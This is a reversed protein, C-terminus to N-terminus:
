IDKVIMMSESGSNPYFQQNVIDFLGISPTTYSGITMGGIVPVFHYSLNTGDLYIKMSYFYGAYGNSYTTGGNTNSAFLIMGYDPTFTQATATTKLVGNVYAKNGDVTINTKTLSSSSGINTQTTYYDFRYNSSVNFM